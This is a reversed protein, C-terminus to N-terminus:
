QANGDDDRAKKRSLRVDHSTVTAVVDLSASLMAIFEDPNDIQFLGVLREDKLSDDTLVIPRRNYRNFEGIAYGLTENELAIEGDRWALSRQIAAPATGTIPATQGRVYTAFHGAELIMMAGSADTPWVAVTGDTVARFSAQDTFIFPSCGVVTRRGSRCPPRTRWPM